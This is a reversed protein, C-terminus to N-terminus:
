NDSIKRSLPRLIDRVGALSGAEAIREAVEPGLDSLSRGFGPLLHVTVAQRRPNCSLRTGNIDRAEKAWGDRTVGTVEALTYRTWAAYAGALTLSTYTGQTELVVLMGRTAETM